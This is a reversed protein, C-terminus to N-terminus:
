LKKYRNKTALCKQIWEETEQPLKLGSEQMAQAMKLIADLQDGLSPYDKRRLMRYDENHQIKM